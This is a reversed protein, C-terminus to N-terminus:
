AVVDIVQALPDRVVIAPAADFFDPPKMTL